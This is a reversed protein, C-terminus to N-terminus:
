GGEGCGGLGDLFSFWVAPRWGECVKVGGDAVVDCM